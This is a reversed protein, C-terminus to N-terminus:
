ARERKDKPKRGRKPLDFAGGSGHWDGEELMVGAVTGRLPDDRPSEKVLERLGEVFPALRDAEWGDQARREEHLAVLASAREELDWGAWGYMATAGDPAAGPYRIFRETPVDFRGRRLWTLADRYDKRDYHPPVGARVQEGADERRQLAWTREWAARKAQGAKTHRFAAHYSVAYTELLDLIVRGAAEGGVSGRFLWSVVPAGAAAEVRAAIHAPDLARADGPGRFVDEIRDLLWAECATAIRQQFDRSRAAEGAPAGDVETDGEGEAVFAGGREGPAQFLRKYRRDEVVRILPHARTLERRRAWPEALQRDLRAPPEDSLWAFPRQEPLASGSARVPAGHVLGLAEYILWDLNEQDCVMSRLSALERMEADGLAEILADGSMRDWRALVREPACAAREQASEALRRALAILQARLPSPEIVARPIPIEGITSASFDFFDDSRHGDGDLVSRRHSAHKLWYCATSSNLYGLLAFCHDEPAEPPMEICLVGHGIVEDGRALVLENRRSVTRCLLRPAGRPPRAPWRQWAWWPQPRGAGRPVRDELTARYRWLFRWWRAGPAAPLPGEEGPGYPVIAAQAPVATWDAISSVLLCPRVVEREIGLRAPLDSPLLFIGDAGSSAGIRVTAVVDRLREPSEIEIAEMLGRRAGAVLSWPHTALATRPLDAVEIYDDEYGPEDLHSVIASWVEGKAPESPTMPEAGRAAVIRTAVARPPRNRGILLLAPAARGPIHAGSTDIVRILEVAPLVEEVLRKGFHRRTFGSSSFLGVFGGHSALDFCREIFPVDLSFSGSASRYHAQYLKRREADRCMISPPECVVVEYRRNLIDPSGAQSKALSDATVIHLQLSGASALSKIKARGMYALALRARTVLTAVPSIDAGHIRDLARRAVEVAGLDPSAARMHDHFREFAEVLLLGSGCAPDMVDISGLGMENLAPELTQDLLWAGVFGPTALMGHEGRQISSINEYLDPWPDGAFSWRLKGSPTTQRFFALVARAAEHSLTDTALLDLAEGLVAEGLPHAAVARLASQLYHGADSEPLKASFAAEAEVSGDGAIWNTGLLGREELARVFACSLCWLAAHLEAQPGTHKFRRLLDLALDSALRSVEDRLRGRGPEPRSRIGRLLREVSAATAEDIPVRDAEIPEGPLDGFQIAHVLERPTLVRARTAPPLALQVGPDTVVIVAEVRPPAADIEQKLLAALARAKQQALALPDPVPQPKPGGREIIWGNEDQSIRGRYSKVEVAYLGYHGLILLDIELAPGPSGFLTLSSAIPFRAPLEQRLLDLLAREANSPPGGRALTIARRLSM